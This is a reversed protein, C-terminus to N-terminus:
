DDRPVEELVRPDHEPHLVPVVGGLDDYLDPYNHYISAFVRDAFDHAASEDHGTDADLLDERDLGEIRLYVTM